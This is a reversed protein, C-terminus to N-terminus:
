VAAEAEIKENIERVLDPIDRVSEKVYDPKLEPNIAAIDDKTTVGTLVITSRAGINKAFQIDTKFQDGVMIAESADLGKTKKLPEFMLKSPKGLMIAKRGSSSQLALINSMADPVFVGHGLPLACDCNTGILLADNEVVIRNGIALKRYTLTRDLAVVVALIDEDIKLTALEDDPFDDVGLANVGNNRMENILGQEGIIFVKRRQDSFGMSLLYQTTVYGASVIMDDPINRFGKGMLRNAIENRTSTPNNTVLYPNIGMERLKDFVEPAGPVLNDGCWLVGDADFLVTKISKM